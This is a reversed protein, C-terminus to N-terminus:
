PIGLTALAAVATTMPCMAAFVDVMRTPAPPMMSGFWCREENRFLEACKVREKGAANIEAEAARGARVLGSRPCQPSTVSGCIRERIVDGLQDSQELRCLGTL